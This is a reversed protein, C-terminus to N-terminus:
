IRVAEHLEEPTVNLQLRWKHLLKGEAPLLPELRVVTETMREQLRNRHKSTGIEYLEMLYGLRRIVAGIDIRLAYDVLRVSDLEFKRRICLRAYVLM